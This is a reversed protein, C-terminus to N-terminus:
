LHLPPFLMYLDADSIYLHLKLTKPGSNPIDPWYFVLSPSYITLPLVSLHFQPRKYGTKGLSIGEFCSTDRAFSGGLSPNRKPTSSCARPRLPVCPQSLWPQSCEQMASVGNPPTRCDTREPAYNPEVFIRQPSIIMPNKEGTSEKRKKWKKQLLM